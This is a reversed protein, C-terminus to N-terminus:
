LTFTGDFVISAPGTLYLKSNSSDNPIDVTLIDNESTLFNIPSSVNFFSYLTLAAASIGTGCASTELEVGREYTRILHLNKYESHETDVKQIFNVNTGSPAFFPDTRYFKGAKNVNTEKINDVQLIAHPVGTNGYFVNKQEILTKSIQCIVPIEICVQDDSKIEAFLIGADTKVKLKTPLSMKHHAYFATCRLGNGCMEGRSGDRNYYEMIIDYDDVTAKIVIIVGDAGIGRKRDCLNIINKTLLKLSNKSKSIIVFDNGAGHMKTFHIKMSCDTM